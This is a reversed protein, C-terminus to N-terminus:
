ITTIRSPSRPHKLGEMGGPLVVEPYLLCMHGTPLPRLRNADHHQCDERPNTREVDPAREENRQGQRQQEIGQEPGEDAAQLTQRTEVTTPAVM